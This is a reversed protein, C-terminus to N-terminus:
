CYCSSTWLDNLFKQIDSKTITSIEKNGFIPKIHNNYRNQRYKNIRRDDFYFNALDDLVITIKQKKKAVVTIDEGHKMKSLQESRLAFTTNERIGESYKGVNIWKKKRLEKDTYTFYYAKDNNELENYYVGTYKKSKIM